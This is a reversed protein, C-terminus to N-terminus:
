IKSLLDEFSRVGLFDQAIKEFSDEEVPDKRSQDTSATTTQTYDDVLEGEWVQNPNASGSNYVKGRQTDLYNAGSQALNVLLQNLKTNDLVQQRQGISVLYDIAGVAKWRLEVLLPQLKTTLEPKWESQFLHNEMEIENIWDCITIAFLVQGARIKIDQKEAPSSNSGGALVNRLVSQLTNKKTAFSSNFASM